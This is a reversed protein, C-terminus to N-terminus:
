NFYTDPGVLNLTSNPSPLFNTNRIGGVSFLEELSNIEYPQSRSTMLVKGPREKCLHPPPLAAAFGECVVMVGDVLDILDSNDCDDLEGLIKDCSTWSAEEERIVSYLAYIKDSASNIEKVEEIPGALSADQDSIASVVPYLMNDECSYDMLSTSKFYRPQVKHAGFIVPKLAMIDKVADSVQARSTACTKVWNEMPIDKHLSSYVSSFTMLLKDYNDHSTKESYPASSGGGDVTEHISVVNTNKFRADAQAEYDELTDQSIFDKPLALELGLLFHDYLDDDVILKDQTPYAM